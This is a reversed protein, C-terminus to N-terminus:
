FDCECRLADVINLDNAWAFDLANILIDLFPVFINIAFSIFIDGYSEADHLEKNIAAYLANSDNTSGFEELFNFMQHLFLYQVSIGLPANEGNALLDGVIENDLPESCILHRVQKALFALPYRKDQACRKLNENELEDFITITIANQIDTTIDFLQIDDYFSHYFTLFDDEYRLIARRCYDKLIDALERKEGLELTIVDCNFIKAMAVLVDERPIRSGAEYKAYNRRDMGLKNAVDQQTLNARHRYYIINDSLRQM